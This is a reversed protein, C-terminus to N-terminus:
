HVKRSRKTQIDSVTSLNHAYLLPEHYCNKRRRQHISVQRGSDERMMTERLEPEVDRFDNLVFIGKIREDGKEAEVQWDLLQRIDQYNAFGTLGKVEVVAHLEPELIEIDHKGEEEKVECQIGLKTLTHAVSNVLEVGDLWLMSKVKVLSIREQEVMRANREVEEESPLRYNTKSAWSPVLEDRPVKYRNEIADLLDRLFISEEEEKAFNYFPLYLMRGNGLPAEFAIPNDEINTAVYRKSQEEDYSVVSYNAHAKWTFNKQYKKMFHYAWHKTNLKLSDGDREKLGDLIPVWSEYYKDGGIIPVVLTGHFPSRMLSGLDDKKGALLDRVYRVAEKSIVVIHYDYMTPLNPEFFLLRGDFNHREAPKRFGTEPFITKGTQL